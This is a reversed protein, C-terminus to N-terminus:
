PSLPNPTYDLYEVHGDLHWACIVMCEAIRMFM